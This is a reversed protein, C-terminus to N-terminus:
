LRQAIRQMPITVWPETELAECPDIGIDPRAMPPYMQPGAPSLAFMCTCVKDVCVTVYEYASATKAGGVMGIPM